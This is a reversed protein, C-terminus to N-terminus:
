LNLIKYKLLSKNQIRNIAILRKVASTSILRHQNKKITNKIVSVTLKKIHGIVFIYKM